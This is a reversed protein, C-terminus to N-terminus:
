VGFRGRTANFNQRVENSSLKKLYIMCSAMQGYFYRDNSIDGLASSMAYDNVGDFTLYGANNGNYSIGNYLYFSNTGALNNWSTGSGPYSNRDAADLCLVLGDTVIKPGTRYSM